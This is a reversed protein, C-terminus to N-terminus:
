GKRNIKIIGKIGKRTKKIIQLEYIGKNYTEFGLKGIYLAIIEVSVPDIGLVLIAFEKLNMKKKTFLNSKFKVYKKRYDIEFLSSESKENNCKM